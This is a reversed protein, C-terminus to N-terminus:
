IRYIQVKSKLQEARDPDFGVSLDSEACASSIAAALRLTEEIDMGTYVGYIMGSLFCDGCGITNVVNVEPSIVRYYTGEHCVLSGEGGLSVAILPIDYKKLCEMAERIDEMTELRRGCIYSLEDQNPKILFPKEEICKKLTEGSADMIVRVNKDRFAKIITNYVYPDPCNSADGSFVLYDGENIQDQMYSIFSQIDDENLSVGKASLCTSKGNEEVILYNIRTNEKEHIQFKVDILEDSLMNIIKRGNEGHAIGLAQNPLGLRSLNISVHTGKGGLHDLTDTLRNTVEPVFEKLYLMRDIAPNLTITHIQEM